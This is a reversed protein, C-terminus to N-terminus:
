DGVGQMGGLERFCQEYALLWGLAAAVAPESEIVGGGRELVAAEIPTRFTYLRKEDRFHEVVPDVGGRQSVLGVDLLSESLLEGLKDGRHVLDQEISQSLYRDPTAMSVWLGGDETRLKYYAPEAPGQAECCLEGNFLKVERFVGSAGARAAVAELLKAVREAGGQNSVPLAM